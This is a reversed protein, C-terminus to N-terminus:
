EMTEKTTHTQSIKPGNKGRSITYKWGGRTFSTSSITYKAIQAAAQNMLTRIDENDILENIFIEAKEIFKKENQYVIAERCDCNLTAAECLEENSASELLDVVMIQGCFKCAGKYESM